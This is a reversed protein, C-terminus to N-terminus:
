SSCRVLPVNVWEQQVVAQAYQKKNVSLLVDASAVFGRPQVGAAVGWSGEGTTCPRWVTTASRALRTGADLFAACLLHTPQQM